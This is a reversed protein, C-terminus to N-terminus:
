DEPVVPKREGEFKIKTRTKFMLVLHSGPTRTLTCLAPFAFYISTNQASCISPIISPIKLSGIIKYFTNFIDTLTGFKAFNM